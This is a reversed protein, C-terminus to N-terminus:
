QAFVVCNRGQSKGHYLANDAELLLSKPDSIHGTNSCSVGITVSVKVTVDSELEILLEAVKCRIKNAIEATNERDADKIVVLFEEGGYRGVQDVNTRVSAQLCRGIMQLCKDGALHGYTDNFQKFDDVDIMLVALKGSNQAVQKVSEDLFELISRRNSIGTLSDITAQRNLKRGLKRNIRDFEIGFAAGLLSALGLWFARSITKSQSVTENTLDIMYPSIHYMFFLFVLIFGTFIISARANISLAIFIPTIPLIAVFQSNIGGSSVMLPVLAIFGGLVLVKPHWSRPQGFKIILYVGGTIAINFIGIYTFLIDQDVFIPRVITATLIVLFIILASRLTLAQQLNEIQM